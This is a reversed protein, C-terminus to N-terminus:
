KNLYLTYKQMKKKNLNVIKKFNDFKKRQFFNFTKKKFKFYNM